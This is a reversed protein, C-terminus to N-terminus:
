GSLVAFSSSSWQDSLDLVVLQGEFVMPEDDGDFLGALDGHVFRYLTLALSREPASPSPLHPRLLEFLARDDRLVRLEEMERDRLLALLRGPERVM